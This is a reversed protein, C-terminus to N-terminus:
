RQQIFPNPNFTLELSAPTPVPPASDEWRFPTPPAIYSEKETKRGKTKDTNDAVRDGPQPPYTGDFM